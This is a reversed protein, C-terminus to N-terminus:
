RATAERRIVPNHRYYQHTGVGSLRPGRRGRLSPSAGREARGDRGGGLDAGEGHGLLLEHFDGAGEAGAGPDHHHVFRSSRQGALLLVEEEGDHAVQAAAPDAMALAIVATGALYISKALTM